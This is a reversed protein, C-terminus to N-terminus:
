ITPERDAGTTTKPQTEWILLSLCTVLCTIILRISYQLLTFTQGNHTKEYSFSCFFVKFQVSVILRFILTQTAIHM